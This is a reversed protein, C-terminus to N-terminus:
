VPPLLLGIASGLIAVIILTEVLSWRNGTIRTRLSGVHWGSVLLAAWLLLNCWWSVRGYIVMGILCAFFLGTGAIAALAVPWKRSASPSEGTPLWRRNAVILGLVGLLSAGACMGAARIKAPLDAFLLEPQPDIVIPAAYPTIVVRSWVPPM